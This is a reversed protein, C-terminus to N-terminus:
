YSKTIIKKRELRYLQLKKKGKSTNASLSDPCRRQLHEEGGFKARSTALEIQM